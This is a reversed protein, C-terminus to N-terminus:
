GSYEYPAGSDCVALVGAGCTYTTRINKTMWNHEEFFDRCQQEDMTNYTRTKHKVKIILNSVIVGFLAMVMSATKALGSDKYAETIAGLLDVNKQMTVAVLRGPSSTVRRLESALYGPNRLSYLVMICIVIDFSGDRFPLPESFNQLLFRPWELESQRKREARALMAPSYDIGIVKHGRQTLEWTYNGTGCGADLIRLSRGQAFEDIYGCVEQVLRHYPSFHKALNDYSRAYQNWFIPELM